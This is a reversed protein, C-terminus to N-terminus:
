IIFYELRWMVSVYMRLEVACICISLGLVLIVDNEHVLGFFMFLDKWGTLEGAWDLLVLAQAV